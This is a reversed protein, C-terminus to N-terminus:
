DHNIMPNAEAVSSTELQMGAKLWGEKGERYVSIHSYGLRELERAAIESAHCNLDRCYLVVEASKDPLASASLEGIQNSPINIAGPLHGRRYEYPPLTEILTSRGDVM